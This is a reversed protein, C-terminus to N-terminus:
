IKAILKKMDDVEFAPLTETTVNGAKALKLMAACASEMDPADFLILGDYQGSMWLLKEVHIGSSAASAKFSMARETTKDIGELGFQTYRLLTVFKM